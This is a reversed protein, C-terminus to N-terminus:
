LLGPYMPNINMSKIICNLITIVGKYEQANKFDIKIIKAFSPPSVIHMYVQGQFNIDDNYTGNGLFRDDELRKLTTWYWVEIKRRLYSLM